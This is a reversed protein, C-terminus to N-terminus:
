SRLHASGLTRLVVVSKGNEIFFSFEKSFDATTDAELVSGITSMKLGGFGERQKDKAM